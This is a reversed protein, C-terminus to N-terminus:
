GAAPEKAEIVVVGKDQARVCDFYADVICYPLNKASTDNWMRGEIEQWAANIINAKSFIPCLRTLEEGAKYPLRNTFIWTVGMLTTPKGTKIQEIQFANLSVKAEQALAILDDKQHPSIVSFLPDDEELGFDALELKKIGARVKELSMGTDGHPIYQSNPLPTSTGPTKGERARGLIGGETVHFLGDNGKSIGMILDFKGRVVATTHNKVFISTPDTATRFKEEKTIYQGSEISPQLTVWRRTQKAPNEPNRRGKEDGRSYEVQELLDSVSQAEGSAPVQTVASELPNKKQQAVMEVSAAYQLKHHQEVLMELPM